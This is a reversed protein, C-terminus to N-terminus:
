DNNFVSAKSNANARFNKFDFFIICQNNRWMIWVFSGADTCFLSQKVPQVKLWGCVISYFFRRYVRKGTGSRRKRCIRVANCNGHILTKGSIICLCNNRKHGSEFCLTNIKVVAGAGYWFVRCISKIPLLKEHFNQLPKGKDQILDRMHFNCIKSHLVHMWEIRFVNCQFRKGLDCVTM